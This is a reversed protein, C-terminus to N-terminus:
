RGRFKSIKSEIRERFIKRAVHKSKVLFQNRVRILLARIPDTDRFMAFINTSVYKRLRIKKIEFIFLYSITYKANIHRAHTHTHTYINRKVLITRRDRTISRPFVNGLTAEEEKNPTESKSARRNDTQYRQCNFFVVAVRHM